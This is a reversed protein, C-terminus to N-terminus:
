KINGEICSVIFKVLKEREDKAFGKLYTSSIQKAFGDEAYKGTKRSVSYDNEIYAYQVSFWKIWGLVWNWYQTEEPTLNEWDITEEFAFNRPKGKKIGLLIRTTQKKNDKKTKVVKGDRVEEGVIRIFCDYVHDIWRQKAKCWKLAFNIVEPCRDRLMEKYSQKKM